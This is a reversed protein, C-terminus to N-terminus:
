ARREPPAPSIWSPLGRRARQEDDAPSVRVDGAAEVLVVEDGDEVTPPPARAPRADHADRAVQDQVRAGEVADVAVGVPRRVAVRAPVLRGIEASEYLSLTTITDTPRPASGPRARSRRSRDPCRRRASRQRARAVTPLAPLTRTATARGPPESWTTRRRSPARRAVEAARHRERDVIRRLEEAGRELAPQAGRPDLEVPM